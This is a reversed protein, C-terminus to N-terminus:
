QVNSKINNKLIKVITKIQNLSLNYSSPLCLGKNHMETAKSIKHKQFKLFAKQLHNPLWVSRTEIGNKKLIKMIKAKSLGYQKKEVMLINLWYNSLSHSPPNLIKLGKIGNILNKYTKHILKKKYIVKKLNELQALGVAAHLNSLRYNYGVENHIFFVPNDKAQTSLYKAKIALKKKNTVIMGGGGSTVLKNGNFSLCGIEGITGTHIKKESKKYFTGLSEAADEIIKINKSKCTSLFNKNLNVSNGFTHVIIIAIIRKGTKKNYCSGKKMYTQNELFELTKNTDILFKEDCDM